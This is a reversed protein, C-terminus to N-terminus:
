GAAREERPRLLARLPDLLAGAAREHAAEDLPGGGSAPPVVVTARVM